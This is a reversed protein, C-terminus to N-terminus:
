PIGAGQGLRWMETADAEPTPPETGTPGWCMDVKGFFGLFAQIRPLTHSLFGWDCSAPCLCGMSRILKSALCPM